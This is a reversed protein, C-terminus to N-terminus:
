RYKEIFQLVYDRDAGYPGPEGTSAFSRIDTATIVQRYSIPNGQSIKWNVLQNWKTVIPKIELYRITGYPEKILEEIRSRVPDFRAAESIIVGAILAQDGGIDGPAYLNVELSDKHAPFIRTGEHTYGVYLDSPRVTWVWSQDDDNLYIIKVTFNPSIAEDPASRRGVIADWSLKRDMVNGTKLNLTVDAM